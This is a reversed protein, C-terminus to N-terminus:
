EARFVFFLTEFRFIIIEKFHGGEGPNDFDSGSGM